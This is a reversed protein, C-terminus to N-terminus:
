LCNCSSSTPTVLSAARSNEQVNRDTINSNQFVTNREEAVRRAEISRPSTTLLFWRWSHLMVGLSTKLFFFRYFCLLATTEKAKWVTGKQACPPLWILSFGATPLLDFKRNETQRPSRPQVKFRIDCVFNIHVFHWKELVCVCVQIKPNCHKVSYFTLSM